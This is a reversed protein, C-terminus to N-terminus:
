NDKLLTARLKNWVAIFDDIDKETTTWGLSLRLTATNRNEPVGMAKLVHSFKTTGSSCASGASIAIGELDLAMLLTEGSLNELTASLTGAARPANQGLIKVRPSLALVEELKNRLTELKAFSEMDACAAKAAAGFAAIGMVNETGARQRKEQGGGTLLPTISMHPALVLAGVGQPGGIKHSSLTIFDAGLGERTFPIKGLAQVADCHFKAGAQHVRAAIEAIPQIVGTENNVLMVSVLEPRNKELLADLATMDILGAPTVPIRPSTPLTENLSSHEIASILIKEPAFARAITNNGETAGSNFIIQGASVDLIEALTGRANEINKRAMRGFKHISSANGCEDMLELMRARAEPRLPTTANHDFYINKM